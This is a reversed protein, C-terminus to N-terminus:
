RAPAKAAQRQEAQREQMAKVLQAGNPLAHVVKQLKACIHPQKQLERLKPLFPELKAYVFIHEGNCDSFLEMDIAGHLVLACAMEWYSTVMRLYASNEGRFAAVIDEASAPSFDRAFWNRAKRMTEERRLEYLQLILRADEQKAAM